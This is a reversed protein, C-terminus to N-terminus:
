LLPFSFFFRITLDQKGDLCSVKVVYAERVALRMAM